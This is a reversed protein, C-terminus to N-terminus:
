TNLGHLVCAPNPNSIHNAATPVWSRVGQTLEYTSYSFRAVRSQLHPKSGNSGLVKRRTLDYTSYSFRAVRSQLCPQSSNSDLM